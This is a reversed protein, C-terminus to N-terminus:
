PYDTKTHRHSAHSDTNRAGFNFRRIRALLLTTFIGPLAPNSPTSTYPPVSAFKRNQVSVNSITALVKPIWIGASKGNAAYLSMLAWM